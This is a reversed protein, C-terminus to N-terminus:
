STNGRYRKEMRERSPNQIMAAYYKEKFLDGVGNIFFALGMELRGKGKNRQGLTWNGRLRRGGRMM